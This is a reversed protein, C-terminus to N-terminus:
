AADVVCSYGLSLSVTPSDLLHAEALQVVAAAQDHKWRGALCTHALLFLCALKLLKLAHM